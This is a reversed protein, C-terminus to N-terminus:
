AKDARALASPDLGLAHLLALTADEFRQFYFAVTFHDVNDVEWRYVAGRYTELWNMTAWCGVSGASPFPPKALDARRPVSASPCGFGFSRLGNYGAAASAGILTIATFVGFRQRSSVGPQSPQGREARGPSGRFYKM